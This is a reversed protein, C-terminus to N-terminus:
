YKGPRDASPAPADVPPAPKQSPLLPPSFCARMFSLMLLLIGLGALLRFMAVLADRRDSNGKSGPEETMTAPPM